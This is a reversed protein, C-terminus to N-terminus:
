KKFIRTLYYSDMSLMGALICINSDRGWAYMGWADKEWGAALAMGEEAAAAAALGLLLREEKNSGMIERTCLAM